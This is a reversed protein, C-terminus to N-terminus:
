EGLLRIFQEASVIRIGQYENLGQLAKDGTVIYKAKGGVACAIVKDDDPDPAVGRLDPTGTVCDGIHVLTLVFAHIHVEALGYKLLIRPLHLVRDVEEVIARSTVLVFQGRRWCRVIERPYSHPSILASVLVNADVVARIM